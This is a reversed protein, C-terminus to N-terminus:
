SLDKPAGAQASRVTNRLLMTITMPGVGGPVPTLFGAVRRVEDFVVDGVLKGDVRNTGVDIVIAGPKVMEATLLRPQGAAVVLIDADRTFSPMNTTRSHCVTVTANEATLLVAVPKGVIQSRGIVVAHKGEITTGTSKILEVVGAPTCPVFAPMDSARPAALLRGLTEPHFGDVDKSPSITEIVRQTEIQPPLPLQVLIGHIAPDENLKAVTDLLQSEPTDKPLVLSRSAMGLEECARGKMRVYTQSAPDEGVLVTALGPTIGHRNLEGVETRLTERLSQALAKGDIIQAEAV